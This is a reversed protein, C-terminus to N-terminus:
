ERKASDDTVFGPACMDPVQLAAAAEKKASPYLVRLAKSLLQKLWLTHLVLLVILGLWATTGPIFEPLRPLTGSLVSPCEPYPACDIGFAIQRIRFWGPRLLHYPMFVLRFGVWGVVAVAWTPVLAAEWKLEDAAKLVDIPIDSAAHLWLVVAGTELIGLHWSAVILVLTVAHHLVMMRQRAAGHRVVDHALNCTSELALAGELAYYARTALLQEHPLQHPWPMAFFFDGPTTLWGCSWCLWGGVLTCAFHVLAYFCREAFAVPGHPKLQSRWDPGHLRWALREGLWGFGRLCARRLLFALAAGPLTPWLLSLAPPEFPAM